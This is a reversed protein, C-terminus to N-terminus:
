FGYDVGNKLIEKIAHIIYEVEDKTNFFGFSFRVTGQPYTGLTKHAIPACHLGCRTMIGFKSDLIHAIEANDHDAFDLSVVAVRDSTDRKGIIKVGEISSVGSIFETTLYMEKEHIAKTGTSNIFQLAKGLGIIAPINMTGSEFKDPLHSPQVFEQSQSGTGGTVLPDVEDAFEKKIVFGGVGQAALLGRGTGFFM